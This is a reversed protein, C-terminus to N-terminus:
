GSGRRSIGARRRALDLRSRLHDTTWPSADHAAAEALAEELDAVAEEARGARALAEGRNARTALLEEDGPRLVRTRDALLADYHRAAEQARDDGQALLAGGFQERASLADESDAGSVRACDDHLRQWFGLEEDASYLPSERMVHGVAFLLDADQEVLADGVADYLAAACALVVRDVEATEEAGPTSPGGAAGPPAHSFADLLEHLAGAAHGAARALSEGALGALVDRRTPEAVRVFGEEPEATHGHARLEAFAADVAAPGARGTFLGRLRRGLGGRRSEGAARDMYRRVSGSAALADAPVGGPDLLSAIELLGRAGPSLADLPPPVEAPEGAASRSM